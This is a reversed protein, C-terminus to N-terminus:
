SVLPGFRRGHHWRELIREDRERGSRGTAAMGGDSQGADVPRRGQGVGGSWGRMWLGRTGARGWGVAGCDSVQAHGDRM